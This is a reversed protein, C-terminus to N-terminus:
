RDRACGVASVNRLDNSKVPAASQVLHHAGPKIATARNQWPMDGLCQEKARAGPWPSKAIGYSRLTKRVAAANSCGIDWRRKITGCRKLRAAPFQCKRALPASSTRSMLFAFPGCRDRGVRRAAGYAEHAFLLLRAIAYEPFLEEPRRARHWDAQVEPKILRNAITPDVAMGSRSIVFLAAAM